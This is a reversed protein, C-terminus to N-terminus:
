KVVKKPDDGPGTEPEMSVALDKLFSASVVQLGALKPNRV